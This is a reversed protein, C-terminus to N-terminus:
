APQIWCRVRIAAQHQEGNWKFFKNSDSLQLGDILAVLGDASEDPTLDASAGGMDTQVWGPHVVVVAVGDKRVEHALMRMLMNLAAKSANYSPAGSRRTQMLNMSGLQSSINVLRANSGARLLAMFHKAILMPGNVNVAFTKELTSVDFQDIKADDLLIGANNVVVDLIGGTFAMAVEKAAMVSTEDTVDLQVIKLNGHTSALAQLAEASNPVRCGAVVREGREVFRKTMEFGLGRNAGTILINTM